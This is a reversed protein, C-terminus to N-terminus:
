LLERFLNEGELLDLFDSVLEELFDSIEEIVYLGPFETLSLTLGNGRSSFVLFMFMGIVINEGLYFFEVYIRAVLRGGIHVIINM